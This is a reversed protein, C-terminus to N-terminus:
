PVAALTVSSDLALSSWRTDPTMNDGHCELRNSRITLMQLAVDELQGGQPSASPPKKNM